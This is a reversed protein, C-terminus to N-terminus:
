SAAARSRPSSTGMFMGLSRLPRSSLSNPRRAAHTDEVAEFRPARGYHRALSKLDQQRVFPHRAPLRIQDRQQALLDQHSDGLVHDDLAILNMDAHFAALADRRE